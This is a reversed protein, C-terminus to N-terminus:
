SQRRLDVGAHGRRPARVAFALGLMREPDAEGYRPATLAVTHYDAPSLVGADLFPQALARFSSM